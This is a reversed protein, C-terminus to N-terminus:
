VFTLERVRFDGYIGVLMDDQAPATLPLKRGAISVTGLQEAVIGYHDGDSATGTARGKIVISAISAKISANGVMGTVDDANGFFKDTGRAIGATISSATFDGGIAIKGAAVDFRSVSGSLDEGLLIEANTVSGKVTLSGVAISEAATTPSANGAFGIIAPATGPQGTVSGNILVSKATTFHLQGSYDSAPKGGILSGGLTFTGVVGPAVRASNAGSGGIISGAIKFAGASSGSVTGSADGDGAVVSGGITVATAKGFSVTGSTADDGGIISGGVTLSTLAKAGTAIQIRGSFGGAGGVVSGGVKVINNQGTLILGGSSSGDGGIISGAVTVSKAEGQISFYGTSPGSGGILSGGILATGVKGTITLNAGILDGKIKVLPLNGSVTSVITGPQNTGPASGFSLADLSKVAPIVPDNTGANIREINGGVKVAGLNLGTADITGINVRGDGGTATKKATFTLSAGNFNADGVVGMRTLERRTGDASTLWSFQSSKLTGASTKVTVLDGDGDTYTFSKGDPFSLPAPPQVAIDFVQTAGTGISGILTAAATTLNLTYLNQISGVVGSYFATNGELTTLIDFGLRDNTNSDTSVNIDGVKIGVGGNPSPNGNLGGITFLDDNFYHIAYLTTSAAGTYNNSYAIGTITSAVSINTDTAALTGDDPNIRLSTNNQHILRIRDVAPNFDMGFGIGVNLTTSFPSGGVATAEATVPNIKYLRGTFPGAGSIAVGYLEGTAPRFDMAKILEGAGLGTIATVASLTSPTASDFSFLGNNDNVGFVTAPAIRSELPEISPRLPASTKM